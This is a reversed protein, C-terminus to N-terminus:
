VFPPVDNLEVDLRGGAVADADEAVEGHQKVDGEAGAAFEDDAAVPVFFDPDGTVRVGVVYVVEAESVGFEDGTNGNTRV